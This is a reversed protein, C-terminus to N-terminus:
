VDTIRIERKESEIESIDIGYNCKKRLYHDKFPNGHIPIKQAPSESTRALKIRLANFMGLLDFYECRNFHM